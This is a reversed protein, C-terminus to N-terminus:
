LRDVVLRAAVQLPDWVTSFPPAYGLDAMLLAEADLGATLAVAVADLRKASGHGGVVQAGLLRGTVAEVILKVTMPEAVDPLYRSATTAEVVEVVTAFGAAAAEAEGLGTRGVETGCLKTVATGVVGPFTAYGGALNIGAVRGQKNAVTGLAQYVPMGSVIHRSQCCDGAAYVGEVSTRQRRDVAIAGAVGLAIGAEAALATNPVVGTGLLVLDAPITGADTVVAGDEVAQLHEGSRVTVGTARLARAVLAGMDPDLGRMVEPAGDVVTVEAGRLVFAEALELGIYGGGIVVVPGSRGAADAILREADGLTQVGHVNPNDIGPVEPRRPLAGTALHLLDFGLTFTRGHTLNTVTATRSGLDIGEVRHEPRVDIRMARFEEPRRAVLDGISPVAGGVLYPIGCASYSTDRGAEVAVIELDNRRRRAVSAAAMGAGDGGVVLLRSGMRGLNPAVM